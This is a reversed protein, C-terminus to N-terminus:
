GVDVVLRPPAALLDVSFPRKRDLGIIWTVVGEFSGAHRVEVIRIGGRPRVSAPGDYTPEPRGTSLDVDRAPRFRVVVFADGEVDVPRGSGDERFPPDRYAAEYGLAGREGDAQRFEFVARDFCRHRGARVDTLLHLATQDEPPGSKREESGTFACPAARVVFEAV